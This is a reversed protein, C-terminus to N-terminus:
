VDLLTWGIEPRRMIMNQGKNIPKRHISYFSFSRTYIGARQGSKQGSHL